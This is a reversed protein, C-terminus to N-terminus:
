GGRGLPVDAATTVQRCGAKVAAGRAKAAMSDPWMEESKVDCFEGCRRRVCRQMAQVGVRVVRVRRSGSAYGM